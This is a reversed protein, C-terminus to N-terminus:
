IVPDVDTVVLVEVSVAAPRRVCVQSIMRVGFFFSAPSSTTSFTVLHVEWTTGTPSCPVVVEEEDVAVRVAVPVLEDGVEVAVVEEAAVEVAVAVPCLVEVLALEVAVAVPLPLVRTRVADLVDAVAAVVSDLEVPEVDPAADLAADGVGMTRVVEAAGADDDDVVGEGAAAEPVAAVSLAGDVVLEDLEAM